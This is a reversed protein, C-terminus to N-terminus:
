VLKEQVPLPPVPIKINKMITANINAQNITKSAKSKAEEQFLSFNMILNVFYPIALESNVIVRILYSAFCYDGDLSFLGTKGVYEISNTRSFLIDGKHLKYKLFEDQSIDVYEMSGNDFMKGLIIEDMRFIKYGKNETNMKESIGYQVDLSIKKIECFDYKSIYIQNIKEEIENRAQQIAEKAKIVAHDIAECESVIQQQVKLPPLPIKTSRVRETNM